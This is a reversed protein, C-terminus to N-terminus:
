TMEIDEAENILIAFSYILTISCAAHWENIEFKIPIYCTFPLLSNLVSRKDKKGELVLFLSENEEREREIYLEWMEKNMRVFMGFLCYFLLLCVDDNM